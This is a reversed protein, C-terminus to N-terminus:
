VVGSTAPAPASAHVAREILADMLLTATPDVGPEDRLLRFTSAVVRGRGYNREVALAVPKHIWGAFLGAHVRGQFDLRNCGTIVHKPMVREYAMDLLPGGALTAFPGKRRVWAFSSAWDGQWPTGARPEVQVNQWHPFFPYLSMYRDALLLLRKGSRVAATLEKNFGTAILLDAEATDPASPYGLGMLHARIAPDRTWVRPPAKPEARPAHVALATRNRALIRGDAHLTLDIATSFPKDVAPLVFSASQRAVQGPEIDPLRVELPPANSSALKIDLVPARLAEGEAHAVALQLDLTEGSWRSWHDLEAIAITGANIDRFREHFIRPNRRMDMLGNAEWHVDTLETIVYGAIEPALRMREIEYKLAAFQHWQTARILADFDDFVSDLHWDAFRNELGHPYMVGGSWDHGTEFWWPERADPGRLLRPDPLGWNGFESCVLPEKGTTEADPEPAFLFSGRASLHEVFNDWSARSDPIAAYFHYDAIDTKMHFSPYIPSNDVVLRSPDTRKLWEYTRKLWARDDDDHVLDVGWNENIITWIVISPHHSDRDLMGQLLQEKRARSRETSRGGNPLESWVLIGIRDAADLYRTDPAKIHLRVCNLGMAKSKRLQDEVFAASPTTCLTDPYYDQDLAGRLYIPAGNLYFKGDHAEFTRFGFSRTQTDIVEGRRALVVEIAYLHPHDPSWALVQALEMVPMTVEDVGSAVPANAKAVVQGSPDKVSVEAELPATAPAALLVRLAVCRAPLSPRIRLSSIHDPNRCELYVPQWIGSQPGYWGQKGFPIEGLPDDPYLSQDDIPSDVRVKIENEGERIMASVNCSFPLFGGDHSGALQDNVWVKASQFVAGFRVFARGNHWGRPIEFTRRYIGIGSKMRLDSFQAQWVGPVVIHRTEVPAVQDMGAYLFEWVGDLEIARTM